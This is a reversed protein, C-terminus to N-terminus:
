LFVCIYFKRFIQGTPAYNNWSSFVSPCLHRFGFRSECVQVAGDADCVRGVCRSELGGGM